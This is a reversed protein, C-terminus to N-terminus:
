KLNVLPLKLFFKIVWLSNVLRGRISIKSYYKPGALPVCFLHQNTLLGLPFSGPLVVLHNSWQYQFAVLLQLSSGLSSPERGRYHVLIRTSSCSSVVHVSPTAAALIGQLLPMGSHIVFPRVTRSILSLAFPFATALLLGIVHKGIIHFTSVPIM